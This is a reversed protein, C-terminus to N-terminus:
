IMVLKHTQIEMIALIIEQVTIVTMFLPPESNLLECEFGPGKGKPAM